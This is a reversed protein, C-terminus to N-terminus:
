PNEAFNLNHTFTEWAQNLQAQQDAPGTLIAAIAKTKDVRVVLVKVV